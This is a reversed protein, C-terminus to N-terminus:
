AREVGLYLRLIIDRANIVAKITDPSSSNRVGIVYGKYYHEHTVNLYCTHSLIEPFITLIGNFLNVTLTKRELHEREEKAIELESRNCQGNRYYMCAPDCDHCSEPKIIEDNFSYSEILLHYIPVGYENPRKELTIREVDYADRYEKTIFCEGQEITQYDDSLDSLLDGLKPFKTEM